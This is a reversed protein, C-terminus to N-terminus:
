ATAGRGPGERVVTARTTGSRSPPSYRERFTFAEPCPGQARLLELREKAEDLTPVTGAPVWWLVLHPRDMREFWEARRRMVGTHASRYTFERLAEVSEWVSLNVLMLPDPFVRIATADGDDTQLRWVFGPSHDALANIEDLRAVFGAMVPDDMEARARAVNLQALHHPSTM